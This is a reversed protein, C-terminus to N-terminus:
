RDRRRALEGILLADATDHTISLHPFLRQAAAKTIRKDGGSKCRMYQQWRGPPIDEFRIQHAVLLGRLFGYSQGLKFSAPKSMQPFSQVKEILASKITFRLLLNQVRESVDHETMGALMWADAWGDQVLAIGGKVGPDIGLFSSVDPNM